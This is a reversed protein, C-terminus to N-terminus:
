PATREERLEDMSVVAGRRRKPKSRIAALAALVALKDRQVKRRLRDLDRERFVPVLGTLAVPELWSYRRRYRIFQRLSVGLRAAAEKQTLGNM